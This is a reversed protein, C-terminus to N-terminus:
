IRHNLFELCRRRIQFALNANLSLDPFVVLALVSIFISFFGFLLVLMIFQTRGAMRRLPESILVAISRLFCLSRSITGWM